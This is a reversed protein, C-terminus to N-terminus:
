APRVATVLWISGMLRVGDPSEYARLAERVEDRVRARTAEDVDALNHRVPGTGFYFDVADAADRGWVVPVPVLTVSVDAFGAADLIETVRDPDALSGMGRAAPSPARMLPALAAFARTHDTEGGGRGPGAFVLRGGPRLARRINTFAAVHDGFFMVGGRSLALDYGADPFPHVQADGREFTVNGLGEAAARARAEALMPASIDVGTVRGPDAARAALRTVLGTGCGIDLVRDGPEIAAAGLLPENIGAAMVDYRDAHEAWHRGESGNWAEAQRINVITTM